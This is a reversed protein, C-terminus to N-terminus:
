SALAQADENGNCASTGLSIPNGSEELGEENQLANGQKGGGDATVPAEARAPIMRSDRSSSRPPPTVQNSDGMSEDVVAGNSATTPASLVGPSAPSHSPSPLPKNSDRLSLLGRLRENAGATTRSNGLTSKRVVSKEGM